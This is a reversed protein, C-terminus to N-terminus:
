GVLDSLLPRCDPFRETIEVCIVVGIDVFVLKDKEQLVPSEGQGRSLRVDDKVEEVFVSIALNGVVVEDLWDTKFNM